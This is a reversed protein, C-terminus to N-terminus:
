GRVALIAATSAADVLAPLKALQDVPMLLLRPAYFVGDPRCFRFAVGSIPGGSRTDVVNAETVVGGALEYDGIAPVPSSMQMFPLDLDRSGRGLADLAGDDGDVIAAHVACLAVSAAVTLNGVQANVQRQAHPDAGCGDIQCSSM